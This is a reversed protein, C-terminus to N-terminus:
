FGFNGLLIEFSATGLQPLYSWRAGIEFQPLLRMFNFDIKGEFGVSQYNQYVLEVNNNVL